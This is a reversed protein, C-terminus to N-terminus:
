DMRELMAADYPVLAQWGEDRVKKVWDANAILARGIALLDVDREIQEIAPGPDSITAEGGEDRTEDMGRTVTVSGVAITPCGSLEQTWAALSRQAPDAEASFAPDLSRRTSVHMIDVGAGRLAEVWPKLDEPSLFKMERYDDMLWQSFRYLIPYDPGVAARVRRTVELPFRMRNELSGGYEDTRENTTASLFSDLLYGHAGHIELADAGIEKAYRASREFADLVEAFDGDGMARVPPRQTGDRRAPMVAASPGIPNWAARGTHWLQPAFAGGEAHVAEVVKRWAEAQEDTELRPVTDTDYAHKSDIATGESIILGVEGAARRRYYERSEATVCGNADGRRRTMPAMVVRNRLKLTGHEFPTFLRPLSM